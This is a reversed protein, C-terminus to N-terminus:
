VHPSAKVLKELEEPTMDKLLDQEHKKLDRLMQVVDKLNMISERSPNGTATDALIAKMTREIALLGKKLLDDISIDIDVSAVEKPQQEEKVYVGNIDKIGQVIKKM